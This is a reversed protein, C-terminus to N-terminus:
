RPRIPLSSPVVTVSVAGRLTTLDPPQATQGLLPKPVVLLLAAQIIVFRM